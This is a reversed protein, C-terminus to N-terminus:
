ILWTFYINILRSFYTKSRVNILRSFYTKSLEVITNRIWQKVMTTMMMMMAAPVAAPLMMEELSIHMSKMRRAIMGFSTVSFKGSRRAFNEM